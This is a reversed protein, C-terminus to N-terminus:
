DVIQGNVSVIVGFDEGDGVFRFRILDGCDYDEDRELVRSAEAVFLELPLLQEAEDSLILGLEDCDFWFSAAEGPELVGTSLEEAPALRAWFGSDDDFRIDPAVPFSTDNVLEVEVADLGPLVGIIDACGGTLPSLLAALLFVSRVLCRGTM